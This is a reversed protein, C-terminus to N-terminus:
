KWWELLATILTVLLRSGIGTLVKYSDKKVQAANSVQFSKIKLPAPLLYKLSQLDSQDRYCSGLEAFAARVICLCPCPQTGTFCNKFPVSVQIGIIKMHNIEVM